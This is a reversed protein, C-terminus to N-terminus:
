RDESLLDRAPGKAALGARIFQVTVQEAGLQLVVASDTIRQVCIRPQPTQAAPAPAGDKARPTKLFEGEEYARGNIVALSPSGLLISTIKYQSPDIAAKTVVPAAASVPAAATAKRSWGIPWFPARADEPASFSSRNKLTYGEAPAAPEEAPATFPLLAVTVLLPLKANM